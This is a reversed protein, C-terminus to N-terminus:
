PKITPLSERLAETRDPMTALLYNIKQMDTIKWADKTAQFLERAEVGQYFNNQVQTKWFIRLLIWAQQNRQDYWTGKKKSNKNDLQNFLRLSPNYFDVELQQVSPLVVRYFNIMAFELAAPCSM